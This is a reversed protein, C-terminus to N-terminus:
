QAIPRSAGGEQKLLDRAARRVSPDADTRALMVIHPRVSRLGKQALATLAARRVSPDEDRLATVLAETVAEGDFQALAEVVACRVRPIAHNLGRVIEPVMPSGVRALATVCVPRRTEDAALEILAAVAQPTALHALADIATRVVGPDSDHSATWHLAAISLAGGRDGLLRVVNKRREVDTTALATLLSWIARPHSVRSMAALTAQAIREDGDGALNSLETLVREGGIRGLAEVAARRVEGDPDARALHVLDEVVEQAGHQALAEAAAKRVWPDGDTLATALAAVAEVGYVRGLARAAAERGRPTENRLAQVLTPVVCAGEITGLRELAAARVQEDEDYCRELLARVVDPQDGEGLIRVAAERVRGYPHALLGQLSEARAPYHLSALASIVAQRVNGDSHGLMHILEDLGRQDCLRALGQAAFSAMEPVEVLARVLVPIARPDGIRGLAIAVARKTKADCRWFEDMLLPTVRHGRHVLADLARERGRDSRLLHVLARDAWEEDVGALVLALAEADDGSVDAAARRLNERGEDTLLSGIMRGLKTREASGEPHRRALAALVRIVAGIPPAKRNLQEVLPAADEVTAIDGLTEIALLSLWEDDLLPVLKQAVDSHGIQRLADLAASAIFFSSSLAQMVLTDIAEEARLAGLAEIAHFRVNPDPDATAEILAPIAREDYREGLIVAAFLRLRPDPNKLLALIPDLVDEVTMALFDVLTSAMTLNGPEARLRSMWRAAQDPDSQSLWGQVLDRRTTWFEESLSDLGMSPFPHSGNGNPEQQIRLSLSQGCSPAVSVADPRGTVGSSASTRLTVLRSLQETRGRGAWCEGEPWDGDGVTDPKAKSRSAAAKRLLEGVCEYLHDPRIPTTLYDSAGAALAEARLAEDNWATVIVVPTTRYRGRVGMWRLLDIGTVPPLFVDSIVLSVSHRALWQIAEAVSRRGIIQVHRLRHLALAIMRQRAPSHDVILITGGGTTM